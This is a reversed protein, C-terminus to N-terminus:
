SRHHGVIIFQKFCSFDNKTFKVDYAIYTLEWVIHEDVFPALLRSFNMKFEYNGDHYVPKLSPFLEHRQMNRCLQYNDGKKLDGKKNFCMGVLPTALPTRPHRHGGRGKYAM